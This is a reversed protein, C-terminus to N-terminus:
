NLQLSTLPPQLRVQPKVLVVNIKLRGWTEQPNLIEVYWESRDLSDILKQCGVEGEVDTYYDDFVITTLPGIYKQINRWDSEITEWSHGGDIFIFSMPGGSYPRALTTKTNGSFLTVNPTLKKLRSEVVAVSDPQKSLEREMEEDTLERFLDYGYYHVTTTHSRAEAIMKEANIGRGTGIEMLYFNDDKISQCRDRILATLWDYRSPYPINLCRQLFAFTMERYATVSYPLTLANRHLVPAAIAELRAHLTTIDDYLLIEEFHSFYSSLGYGPSIVPIGSALAELVPIPGGERYATVLLADSSAYLVKLKEQDVSEHYTVAVGLNKLKDVVYEWGTGVIIFHFHSLDFKWALDLLVWSRKRGNPQEAGVILINRKRPTFGDVGPTLVYSIKGKPVRVEDGPTMIAVGVSLEMAQKVVQEHGPNTHTYYIACQGKLEQNLMGLWPIFYNLDADWDPADSATTQLWPPTNTLLPKVLQEMAYSHFPAVVHVRM